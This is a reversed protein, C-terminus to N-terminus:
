LIDEEDILGTVPNFKRKTTIKVNDKCEPCILDSKFIGRTCDGKKITSGCNDCIM